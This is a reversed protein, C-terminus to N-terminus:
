RECGGARLSLEALAMMQERPLVIQTTPGCAGHIGSGRVTVAFQGDALRSVNVYPPALGSPTWAFVLSM